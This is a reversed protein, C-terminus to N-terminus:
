AAAVDTDKASEAVCERVAPGDWKAREKAVLSLLEDNSAIGAELLARMYGDVCGQVRALRGQGAGRRRAVIADGVMKSLDGLLETKSRM